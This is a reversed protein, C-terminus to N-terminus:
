DCAAGCAEEIARAESPTIGQSRLYAATAPDYGQNDIRSAETKQKCKIVAQAACFETASLGSRSKNSKGEEINFCTHMADMQCDAYAYESLSFTALFAITILMKNM